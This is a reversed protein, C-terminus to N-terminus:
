VGLLIFGNLGADYKIKIRTYNNKILFNLYTKTSSTVKFSSFFYFKLKTSTSKCFFDDTSDSIEIFKSKVVSFTKINNIKSFINFLGVFM